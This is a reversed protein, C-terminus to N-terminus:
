IFHILGDSSKDSDLRDLSSLAPAINNPKIAIVSQITTGLTARPNKYM